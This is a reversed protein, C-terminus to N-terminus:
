PKTNLNQTCIINNVQVKLASPQRSKVSWLGVGQTSSFYLPSETRIMLTVALLKLSLVKIFEAVFSLKLSLVKVLEVVYLLKLSFAKILEAWRCAFRLRPYLIYGIFVAPQFGLNFKVQVKLADPYRSEEMGLAKRQASTFRVKLGSMINIRGCISNMTSLEM